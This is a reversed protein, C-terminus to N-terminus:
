TQSRSVIQTLPLWIPGWGAFRSGKLSSVLIGNQAFAVPNAELRCIQQRELKHGLHWKPCLCGSQGGAPMDAAKPVKSCSQTWPLLLLIKSGSAQKSGKVKTFKM